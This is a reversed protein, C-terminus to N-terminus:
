VFASRMSRVILEVTRVFRKDKFSARTDKPLRKRLYLGVDQRKERETFLDKFVIKCKRDAVIKSVFIPGGVIGVPFVDIVNGQKTRLWSHQYVPFFYGDIVKVERGIVRAMARVVMHCSLSVFRGKDGMDYGLGEPFHDMLGRIRVLLDKEDQSMLSEDNETYTKFKM